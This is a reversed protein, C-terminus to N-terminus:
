SSPPNWTTSRRAADYIREVLEPTLVDRRRKFWGPVGGRDLVMVDAPMETIKVEPAVVSTLVVVCSRVALPMGMAISLLRSVQEAEYRANRLYPVPEADVRLQYRNAVISDGSHTATNVTFIGGPGIAMHDIDAGGELPISHLVRWGLDRLEDLKTGTFEEVAAAERLAREDADANFAKSAYALLKSKNKRAEWAREAATRPGHGPQQGALDVAQIAVNSTNGETEFM